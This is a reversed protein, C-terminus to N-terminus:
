WKITHNKILFIFILQLIFSSLDFPFNLLLLCVFYNFINKFYFNKMYNNALFLILLIITIVGYTNSIIFDIILGTFLLYYLNNQNLVNLFFFSHLPTYSTIFLDLIVSM